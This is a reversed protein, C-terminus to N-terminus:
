PLILHLDGFEHWLYRRQLAARYVLSLHEYGALAALMDMHSAGPEHFGTLLGDVARLGREPSIVLGTWGDNPHVVGREDAASELARVTTTGVAVVRNGRVRAQNVGDATALPVSFYEEHPLEGAELSAVGTHLTLPLVQIGKAVLRTLTEPTFARGASPMEASGWFDGPDQPTSAYVTQYHDISWPHNVYPYRIPFAHSDLYEGLPMPLELTALWLRVRRRRSSSSERLDPDYPTHLHVRGGEPLRLVEGAAAAFFTTGGQDKSYRLEVIWLHAPLRTSLRVELPSDDARRAPLAAKMTPSNNIALVDGPDLYGPLEPFCSHEISGSLYRSVMLRVQDRSLRTGSGGLREEAPEGAELEPPIEFDGAQIM